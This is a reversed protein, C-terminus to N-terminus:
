MGIKQKEVWAVVQNEILFRYRSHWYAHHTPCLPVLNQPDNNEHNEDM